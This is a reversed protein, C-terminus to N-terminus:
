GARASAARELPQPPREFYRHFPAPLDRYDISRAGAPLPRSSYTNWFLVRKGTLRGAELDALLAAFAKGTYTGELRTGLRDGALDMAAMGEETFRAYGPGIFEHRVRIRRRDLPALRFRPDRRHLHRAAGHYLARFREPSAIDERVVRVLELKSSLGAAELGLALGAATGQTGLAAYIVEPEPLLGARVQGALELGASVFGIAGIPSSGGGPVRYPPMYIGRGLLGLVRARRNAQAETPCFVQHAGAYRGLRLNKAVYSANSQPTLLLWADMGLERAYVATAVAHNSGVVGFTMVSDHGRALADALLFELKRVKNGGYPEGSVDDRKIWLGACPGPLAGTEAEEVPTPLMALPLRPVASALAPYREFLACDGAADM